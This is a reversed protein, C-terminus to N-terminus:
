VPRDDWMSKLKWNGVELATSLPASFMGPNYQIPLLSINEHVLFDSLKEDGDANVRVLRHLNKIVINHTWDGTIAEFEYSYDNTVELNVLVGLRPLCLIQKPLCTLVEVKIAMAFLEVHRKIEISKCFLPQSFDGRVVHVCGRISGAPVLGYEKGSAFIGVQGPTVHWHLKAAVFHDTLRTLLFFSSTSYKM